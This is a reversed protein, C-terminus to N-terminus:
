AETYSGARYPMAPEIRLKGRGGKDGRTEMGRGGRVTCKGAFVFLLV